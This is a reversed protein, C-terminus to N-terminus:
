EKYHESHKARSVSYMEDFIKNAAASDVPADSHSTYDAGNLIIIRNPTLAAGCEIYYQDPNYYKGYCRQNEVAVYGNAALDACTPQTGNVVIEGNSLYEDANDLVGACYVNVYAGNVRARRGNDTTARAGFCEGGNLVSLDYDQNIGIGSAIETRGMAVPESGGSILADPCILKLGWCNSTADWMGADYGAGMGIYCDKPNLQCITPREWWNITAADAAAASACMTLITFIKRM